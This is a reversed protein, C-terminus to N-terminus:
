SVLERTKRNLAPKTTIPLASTRVHVARQPKPETRALQAVFRWQLSLGILVAVHWVEHPGIVGPIITPWRLGLLIAGLSYAVGGAFVLRVFRFGRQKWAGIVSIAAIWGLALYLSTTLGVPMSDRFVATLTVGTIAAAWMLALGVWRVAGRFLIGHVPTFTGAILLFIASKDLHDMVQAGASDAPLMHYVGSMTLLLVASTAFIALFIARAPDDRHRRVLQVGLVAFIAAAGLHSISSVPAFFGPLSLTSM